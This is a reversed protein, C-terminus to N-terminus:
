VKVLLEDPRAAPKATMKLFFLSIVLWVLSTCCEFIEEGADRWPFDIGSITYLLVIRYFLFSVLFFIGLSFPPIPLKVKQMFTRFSHLYTFELPFVIGYLFCVARFLNNITIFRRWDSKWVGDFGIPNVPELNHINFEHQVNIKDM